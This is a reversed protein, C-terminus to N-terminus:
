KDLENASPPPPPREGFHFRAARRSGILRARTIADPGFRARVADVSRAIREEPGGRDFLTLQQETSLHIATLGILRVARAASWADALLTM